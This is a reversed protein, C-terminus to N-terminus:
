LLIKPKKRLSTGKLPKAEQLGGAKADSSPLHNKKGGWKQIKEGTRHKKKGTKKKAIAKTKNAYTGGGGRNEQSARTGWKILKKKIGESVKEWL